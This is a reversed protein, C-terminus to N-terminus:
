SELCTRPAGRPGHLFFPLPSVVVLFSAARLLLFSWPLVSSSLVTWHSQTLRRQTMCPKRKRVSTVSDVRPGVTLGVSEELRSWRSLALRKRHVTSNRTSGLCLEGSGVSWFLRLALFSVGQLAMRSGRQPQGRQGGRETGRTKGDERAKRGKVMMILYAVVDSDTGLGM